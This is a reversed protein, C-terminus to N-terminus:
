STTVPLEGAAMASRIEAQLRPTLQEDADLSLVWDCRALSLARNKQIGFGRWDADTSVEAGLSKAIQVTEDSSGSDLVVIQDAFSVSQLCRAINRAENKTIVIVSLTPM